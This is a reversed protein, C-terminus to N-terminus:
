YSVLVTAQSSGVRYTRNAEDITTDSTIVQSNPSIQTLMANAYCAALERRPRISTLITAVDNRNLWAPLPGQPSLDDLAPLVFHLPMEQRVPPQEDGVRISSAAQRALLKFIEAGTPHAGCFAWRADSVPHDMLLQAVGILNRADPHCIHIAEVFGTKEDLLYWLKGDVRRIKSWGLQRFDLESWRRAGHSWLPGLMALTTEGDIILPFRSIPRLDSSRGTIWRQAVLRAQAEGETATFFGASDGVMMIDARSRLCASHYDVDFVTPVLGDIQMLNPSPRSAIHLHDHGLREVKSGVEVTLADDETRLLRVGHRVSIGHRTFQRLLYRFSPLDAFPDRGSLLVTAEYGLAQAVAGLALAAPNNEAYVTVRSGPPLRWFEDLGVLGPTSAPVERPLPAHSGTAIILQDFALRDGSALVLETGAVSVAEGTVIPYGLALFERKADARLEDVFRDLELRLREPPLGRHALVFESPMCGHNVCKGGFADDRALVTVDEVGAKRLEGLVALAAAGLGLVIIRRGPKAEVAPPRRVRRMARLMLSPNPYAHRVRLWGGDDLRSQLLRQTLRVFRM